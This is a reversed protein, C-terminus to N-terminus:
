VHARGAIESLLYFGFVLAAGLMMSTAFLLFAEIWKRM